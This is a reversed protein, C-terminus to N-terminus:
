MICGVILEKLKQLKEHGLAAEIASKYVYCATIATYVVAVMFSGTLVTGLNYYFTYGVAELFISAPTKDPIWRGNKQLFFWMTICMITSFQEIAM